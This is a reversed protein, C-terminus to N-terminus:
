VASTVDILFNCFGKTAYYCKETEDSVYLKRRFFRSTLKATTFMSSMFSSPSIIHLLLIITTTFFIDLRRRLHLFFYSALILFVTIFCSETFYCFYGAYPKLYALLFM